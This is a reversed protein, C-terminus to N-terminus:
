NQAYLIDPNIVNNTSMVYKTNVNAARQSAPAQYQAQSVVEGFKLFHLLVEKLVAYNQELDQETCCSKQRESWIIVERETSSCIEPGATLSYVRLGEFISRGM